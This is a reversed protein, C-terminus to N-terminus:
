RKPPDLTLELDVPPFPLDVKAPDAADLDAQLEKVRQQLESTKASPPSYKLDSNNVVRPARRLMLAAVVVVLLLFLGVGGALVYM